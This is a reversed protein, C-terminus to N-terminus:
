SSSPGSLRARTDPDSAPPRVQASHVIWARPLRGPQPPAALGPAPGVAGARGRIATRPPRGPEPYILETQDLFSAFGRDPSTWDPSAPLLFYRAGWLDFSRRPFYVVPRGAPVGLARAVAAPVPMPQPHFFAM